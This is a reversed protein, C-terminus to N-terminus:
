TVCNEEYEFSKAKIIKTKKNDNIFDYILEHFNKHEEDIIKYYYDKIFILTKSYNQYDTFTVKNIQNIHIYLQSEVGDFIIVKM